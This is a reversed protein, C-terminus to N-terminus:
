LAPLGFVFGKHPLVASTVQAYFGGKNGEFGM